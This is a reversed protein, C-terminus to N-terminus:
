ADRQGAQGRSGATQAATAAREGTVKIAAPTNVEPRSEANGGSKAIQPPVYSGAPQGQPGPSAANGFASYAMFNGMNGQWIAAAFTPVSIILVTMMLGIGGQQLAHSSLGEANGLTIIRAVWYAAAVKASFKLVMATVVSLMSMSFLTGLVYFLWKKFLDKTQDFVLALIFIPGIGILFAMTFKFLLLMAGAAMPPSATGLGAMLVARGKKELAEPDTPDVRVADLATLAVQTYALNEDIADSATGSNGTFLQHIEKGLNQTITQHLMGGHIGVASAVSIIIAVKGAKIMTAMANERSQGTAIRYGLIMVWLTTVTLAITSVWRMARGMLALGFAQIENSFYDNILKFFVFDGLNADALPQLWNMTGYLIADM